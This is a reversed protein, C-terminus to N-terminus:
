AAEGAGAQRRASSTSTCASCCTRGARSPMPSSSRCAVQAALQRVADEAPRSVVYTPSRQLMTVHAARRPWRRCWTVATAGSGIVVVRKGAYDLDDPWKQPHVIRGKFREIGPFEPTYGRRRLRLLRQVHVPLQLHVAVPERAQAASSRSRGARTRADVLVRAVCGIASLPHAPRHRLRARDRPRVEPDVARRRDGQGRTWPRFSYGLTYM